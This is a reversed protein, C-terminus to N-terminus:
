RGVLQEIYATLLRVGYATASKQSAFESDGFAVGAIDLHAWASHDEVFFELFKAASIAGAVQKGSFNRVDAVDSKIDEKYVDWIPLPWLREGISDGAQCLAKTLAENNSFLGAAHYGFTRVVSGTLTALDIVVEPQHNRVMYSLGDALILRGEADTDIIEISKGSYSGIVDSPRISHADVSNEATPIIGILHVPLQLKAAVEVAGIVAGAGGMDSKMYHLNASPKISLGGTDFTIGKGVLGVKKRANAPAYELVIFFPPNESGRGVALLAHLGLKECQAKDFVTAKYGYKKASAEAFVTLDAPTKKNAPANVIDFIRQQTEGIHLGREAAAMGSTQLNEPLFLHLSAGSESLPHTTGNTTKYRGIMYTGLALGNVAAEIWVEPQGPLAQFTFSIGTDKSLKNQKKHSLVRFCKLVDAFLPQKGLGLVLVQTQDSYISLIEGSDGKFDNSTLTKGGFATSLAAFFTETVGDAAVPIILTQPYSAAQKAAQLIKM